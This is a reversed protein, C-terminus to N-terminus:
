SLRRAIQAAVAQQQAATLHLGCKSRRWLVDEASMAWEQDIFWDVERAYLTAGYNEGLDEPKEANGL